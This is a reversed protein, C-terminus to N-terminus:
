DTVEEIEIEMRPQHPEADSRGAVIRVVQSDNEYGIGQLADLLIGLRKDLDGAKRGRYWTLTLAVQSPRRIQRVGQALAHPGAHEKYRRADQSLVMRGDVNRWWRNASPPVPLAFRYRRASM